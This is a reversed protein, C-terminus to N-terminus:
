FRLPIRHFTNVQVLTFIVRHFCLKTGKSASSSMISSHSIGFIWNFATFPISHCLNLYVRSTKVKVAAKAKALSQNGKRQQTKRRREM